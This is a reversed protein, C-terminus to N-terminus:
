TQTAKDWNEMLSDRLSQSKATKEEGTPTSRVRTGAAKRAKKAREKESELRKKEEDSRKAALAKERISANSWLAQDYLIPLDPIPQGSVIFSKAIREMDGQLDDFFPKDKKFENIKQDWTTVRGVYEAKERELLAQRISNVERLAASEEPRPAADLNGLDIGYTEAIYRIAQQPNQKLQLHAGVLRRVADGESVGFQEIEQRVPDLAHRVEAIAQMKRTYDAQFERDKKLVLEQATKPLSRFAEKDPQTWHDQPSLDGPEWKPAETEKTEAEEEAKFEPEPTEEVPAPEEAKTDEEAEEVEEEESEELEEEAADWNAALTESLSQPQDEATGKVDEGNAM